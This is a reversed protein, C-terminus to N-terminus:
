RRCPNLRGSCNGCHRANDRRRVVARLEPNDATNHVSARVRTKLAGALRGVRYGSSEGSGAQRAVKAAM